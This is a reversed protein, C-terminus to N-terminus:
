ATQFGTESDIGHHRKFGGIKRGHQGERPAFRIPGALRASDQQIAHLRTEVHQRARVLLEQFPALHDHGDRRVASLVDSSITFRSAAASQALPTPATLGYSGRGAGQAWADGACRVFRASGVLAAAAKSIAM